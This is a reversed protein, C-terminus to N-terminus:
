MFLYNLFSLKNLSSFKHFFNRVLMFVSMRFDTMFVGMHMIPLHVVMLM